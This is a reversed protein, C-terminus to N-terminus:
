NHRASADAATEGSRLAAAAGRLRAREAPLDAYREAWIPGGIESVLSAARRTSLGMDRLLEDIYQAVYGGIFYGKGRKPFVTAAWERVHAIEREMAARDPLELEGRFCQSLWHAAVESTLPSNASSAYGIFGLRPEVPPLIHRYLNFGGERRSARQLEPDLFPVEQEWGTAFIVVDAEIEDSEDIRMRDEGSFALDRARRARVSGRRLAHYFKEGIGINQAGSTVLTEPVMHRPMGTLRPVLQSMGRRWLWLLPAAALRLAAQGPGVRHYTPLLFESFRTFLVRDVRVRSFFYRPLMWHPTRFILTCSDAEDAAVTACDLASKGAGVVVVRKGELVKADTFESSHIWLGAFGDHGRLRPVYPKSFVGNCVVVFDFDDTETDTGDSSPRVTVRFGPHSGDSRASGRAVSVVETGLRVHPQIGFDEAYSELYTQVQPATPFEDTAEPYAFDSFAYTERPNNTRLDAYARSPAWVGGVASEKEYVMVDFGDHKLVKASVLGAVGAGIVCARM